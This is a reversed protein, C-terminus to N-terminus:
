DQALRLCMITSLVQESYFYRAGGKQVQWAPSLVEGHLM